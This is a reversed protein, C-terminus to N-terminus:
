RRGKRTYREVVYAGLQVLDVRGDPTIADADSAVKRLTEADIEINGTASLAAAADEVTVIEPLEPAEPKKPKKPKRKRGM